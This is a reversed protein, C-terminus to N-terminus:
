RRAMVPRGSPRVSACPWQAMTFRMPVIGGCAAQDFRVDVNAVANQTKNGCFFLGCLQPLDTATCNQDGLFGTLGQILKDLQNEDLNPNNEAEIVGIVRQHTQTVLTGARKAVEAAAVQPTTVIVLEAGLKTHVVSGLPDAHSSDPEIALVLNMNRFM